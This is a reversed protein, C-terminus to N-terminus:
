PKKGWSLAASGDKRLRSAEAVDGRDLARFTEMYVGVVDRPQAALRAAFELTKGELADTEDVEDFLGWEQLTAAGVPSGELFLRRLRSPGLILRLRELAAVPYFLRSKVAPIGVKAATDAFRFDAMVAIHLGGGYCNGHMMAITPFPMTAMDHTFTAMHRDVAAFASAPDGSEQAFKLDVGASFARTGAGRLVLAGVDDRERAEKVAAALGETMPPDMANLRGDNAFTVLAVADRVEMTVTGTM